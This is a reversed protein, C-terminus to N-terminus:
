NKVCVRGGRLGWRIILLNTVDLSVPTLIQCCSPGTTHSARPIELSHPLCISMMYACATIHLSRQFRLLDM